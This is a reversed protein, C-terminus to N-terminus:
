TAVVEMVAMEDANYLDDILTGQYTEADLGDYLFLQGRDNVISSPGGDELFSIVFNGFFDEEYSSRVVRRRSDASIARIIADYAARTDM